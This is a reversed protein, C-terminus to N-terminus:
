LRRLEYFSTLGAEEAYLVQRAPDIGHTEKFIEPRVVHVLDLSARDIAALENSALYGIDPCIIPGPQPNCDCDRTMNVLANVYLARKGSICAKAALALGRQLDMVEHSLAGTPCASVCKGCGDCSLSDYRWELEVTIAKSPCAAACSGCLDCKEDSLIPISWYHIKRKMEKTVGGMGLNKIAGGFGAQFHGKVHSVVVMHTSDNIEQAVDFSLGGDVLNVGKDGIVVECGMEKEGFGHKCAARKYGDATARPGPYAVTTDFLFPEAGVGRLKDVISKVIRPSIFHRNGPEGMHLKIPVRAGRFDDIGLMELATVVKAPEAFLFVEAM